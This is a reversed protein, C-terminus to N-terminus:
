QVLYFRRGDTSSTSCNATRRESHFQKFGHSVVAYLQPRDSPPPNHPAIAIHSPLPRDSQTPQSAIAKHHTHPLDSKAPTLPSRTAQLSFLQNM